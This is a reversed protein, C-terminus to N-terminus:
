KKLIAKRLAAEDRGAAEWYPVSLREAQRRANLIEYNQAAEIENVRTKDGREIRRRAIKAPDDVMCILKDIELSDFFWDPVQILGETTELTVHADFIVNETNHIREKIAALLIKQNEM